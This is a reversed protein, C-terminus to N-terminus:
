FFFGGSPDFCFLCFEIINNKLQNKLLHLADLSLRIENGDIKAFYIGITEVYVSNQIISIQERNIDGSFARIKEQGSKLLFYPISTIGYIKLKELIERKNVNENIM